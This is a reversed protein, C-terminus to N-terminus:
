ALRAEAEPKTATVILIEARSPDVAALKDMRAAESRWEDTWLSAQAEADYPDLGAGIALSQIVFFSAAAEHRKFTISAFGREELLKGLARQNPLFLHRPAELGRWHKGFVELGLADRNPLAMWLHGGPELIRWMEKLAAHPDHVHEFVHNATIQVFHADPFGTDQFGGQRVDFGTSRAAAVAKEDPDLGLPEYGLEAAVRLFRGAGCGVDLLRSGPKPHALHRIQGGVQICRETFLGYVIGGFRELVSAPYGYALGLYGRRMARKLAVFRGGTWIIPGIEAHHTNYREYAKAIRSEDIRPDLYATDCASCSWFTWTGPVTRYVWDEVGAFMLMRDPSSCMPCIGVSELAAGLWDEIESV